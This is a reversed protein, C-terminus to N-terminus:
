VAQECALAGSIFVINFTRLNPYIQGEIVGPSRVQCTGWFYRFLKKMIKLLNEFAAQRTDRALGPTSDSTPTWVRGAPRPFGPTGAPRPNFFIQYLVYGISWICKTRGNSHHRWIKHEINQENISLHKVSKILYISFEANDIITLQWRAMGIYEYELSKILYNENCTKRNPLHHKENQKEVNKRFRFIKLSIISIMSLVSCFM